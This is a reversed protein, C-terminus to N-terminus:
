KYDNYYSNLSDRCQFFYSIKYQMRLDVYESM